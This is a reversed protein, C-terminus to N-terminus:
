KTVKKFVIVGAVVVAGILWWNINTAFSIGSGITDGASVLADYAGQLLPPTYSAYPDWGAQAKVQAAAQQEPTWTELQSSPPAVPLPPVVPSVTPACFGYCSDASVGVGIRRWWEADWPWIIGLGRQTYM